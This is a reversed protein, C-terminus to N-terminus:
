DNVQEEELVKSDDKMVKIRSLIRSKMEDYKEESIKGDLLADDLRDLREELVMMANKMDHDSKNSAAPALTPVEAVRVLPHEFKDLGGQIAQKIDDCVNEAIERTYDDHVSSRVTIDIKCKGDSPTIGERYIECGSVVIHADVGFLSSAGTYKRGLIDWGRHKVHVSKADVMTPNEVVSAVFVGEEELIEVLYRITHYDPILNDNDLKEAVTFEHKYSLCELGVQLEGSITTAKSVEIQSGKRRFGNPLFLDTARIKFGSLNGEKEGSIKLSYRGKLVSKKGLTEVIKKQFTVQLIGPVSVSNWIVQNKRPDYRGSDPPYVRDVPLEPPIDLVFRELIVDIDKSSDVNFTNVDFFIDRGTQDGLRPFIEVPFIRNYDPGKFIGGESKIGYEIAFVGASGSEIYDRIKKRVPSDKVILHKVNTEATESKVFTINSMDNILLYGLDWDLSCSDEDIHERACFEKFTAEESPGFDVMIKISGKGSVNSIYDTQDLGDSKMISLDGCIEEQIVLKMNECNFPIRTLKKRQKLFRTNHLSLGIVFFLLGIGLMWLGYYRLSHVEAQPNVQFCLVIGLIFIIVGFAIKKIHREVHHYHKGCHVGFPKSGFGPLSTDFLQSSLGIRSLFSGTQKGRFELSSESEHHHHKCMIRGCHHCVYGKHKVATKCLSCRALDTHMSQFEHVADPIKVM